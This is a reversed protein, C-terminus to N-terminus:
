VLASIPHEKLAGSLMLLCPNNTVDGCAQHSAPVHCCHSKYNLDVLRRASRWSNLKCRQLILLLGLAPISLHVPVFGVVSVQLCVTSSCSCCSKIGGVHHWALLVMSVMFECNLRHLTIPIVQCAHACASGNCTNTQKSSWCFLVLLNWGSGHM